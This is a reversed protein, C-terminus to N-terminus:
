ALGRYTNRTVGSPMLDNEVAVTCPWEVNCTQCLSPNQASICHMSTLSVFLEEIQAEDGNALREAEEMDAELFGVEQELSEAYDRSEELDNHLEVVEEYLSELLDALKVLSDRSPPKDYDTEEVMDQIISISGSALKISDTM